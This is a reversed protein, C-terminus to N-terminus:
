AADGAQTIALATGGLARFARQRCSFVIVQLDQSQRTLADFMQEIRDDDTYVIADDLIVPAPRGDRALIRAFALRVLLSIQEQTGGSLVDFEEEEGRRTIRTILGTDADIVPEADPWIMRLLPLLERHVAAVYNERATDRAAQLARELRQHVAIDFRIRALRDEAQKLQDETLALEEEVANSSVVSIRSNLGAYEERLRAITDTASKIVSEARTMAAEAAALDPANALRAQQAQRAQELASAAEQQLVRLDALAKAPDQHAGLAEQARMARNEANAMDVEARTLSDKTADAASRAAELAESAEALTDQAAMEAAEAQAVDPVDGETEVPEPLADHETRLADLGHPALARLDAEAQRLQTEIGRRRTLSERAAAVNDMGAEALATRLAAEAEAVAGDDAQAASIELRGIGDLDLTAGTLVPHRRGGEVPQGESTIRGEGGACYTVSFAAAANEHSKRAISLDRALEELKGLTEPAIEGGVQKRLEAIRVGLKEAQAIREKLETRRTASAAAEKARMARRLDSAAREVAKRATDHVKKARELRKQAEDNQGTREDVIAKAKEVAEHASRAETLIGDLAEIQADCSDLQASLRAIENEGDKVKRDHARAAELTERAEELAKAREHHAEPADLEALERRVQRRRELDQQLARMDAQLQDRRETLAEVETTAQDLGGNRKPRGTGTLHQGLFAACNALAAEMRRGGTMAEVEGAVSTMIDRRAQQEEGGSDLGVVGQRVWLLGAPGGDSPPKLLGSLMADAEAKQAVLVGDRWLKADKRGASSSWCKMLKWQAGDAEFSVTVEPDGGVRPVLAKVTKDFSRHSVFFAAHLAEFFTSKGHENPAVLVNLGPGFGDIRVPDVFRRVNKLTVSTIQM